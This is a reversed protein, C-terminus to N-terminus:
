PPYIPSPKLPPFGAQSCINSIFFIDNFKKKRWECDLEGSDTLNCWNEDPFVNKDELITAMMGKQTTLFGSDSLWLRIKLWLAMRHVIWEGSFDRISDFWCM